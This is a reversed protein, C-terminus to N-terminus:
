RNEIVKRCAASLAERNQQLCQYIAMDGDNMVKRCHRSVDRSCAQQQQGRADQAQAVGLSAGLSAGLLALAFLGRSLRRSRSRAPM